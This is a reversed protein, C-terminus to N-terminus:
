ELVVVKRKCKLELQINELQVFPNVLLKVASHTFEAPLDDHQPSLPSLKLAVPVEM